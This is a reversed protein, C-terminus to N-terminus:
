GVALTIIKNGADASSADVAHAGAELSIRRHQVDDVFVPEPWVTPIGRPMRLALLRGPTDGMYLGLSIESLDRWAKEAFLENSVEFDSIDPVTFSATVSALGMVVDAVGQGKTGCRKVYHDFEIVIEPDRVDCTGDPDATGDALSTFVNSGVVWRTSGRSLQPEMALYDTQTQLGGGGGNRPGEGGYFVLETTAYWRDDQDPALRIRRPLGGIFDRQMAASEGLIRVTLPEPATASPYINYTPCRPRTAGSVVGVDEALETVYPGGSGITRAFGMAAVLGSSEVAAVLCGMKAQSSALSFTNADTTTINNNAYALASSGGLWDLLRMAGALGPSDRAHAYTSVQGHLPYRIALTPWVRGTGRKTGAGRARRARRNATQSSEYALQPMECDIYTFSVGATNIDTSQPALGVSFSNSRLVESWSM